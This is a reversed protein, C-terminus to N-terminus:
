TKCSAVLSCTSCSGSGCGEAEDTGCNPGCGHEVATAFDGIKAKSEYAVALADVTSQIEPPVVGLFYFYLTKADFLTEVDILAAEAQQSELLAQCATFAATRNKQLRAWLLEDESTMRRLLSGDSEGRAAVRDTHALVEGVELGRGSRCIVRSGRDFSVPDVSVFRGVHGFVGIRVLHDRCSMM